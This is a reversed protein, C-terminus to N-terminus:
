PAAVEKTYMFETIVTIIIFNIYFMIDREALELAILTFFLKEESQVHSARGQATSCSGAGKGAPLAAGEAQGLGPSTPLARQQGPSHGPPEGLGPAATRCSRCNRCSSCRRCGMCSRCSGCRGCGRCGRYGRCRGCGRCGRCGGARACGPCLAAGGARPSASPVIGDRSCTWTRQANVARKASGLGDEKETETNKNLCPIELLSWGAQRARAAAAGERQKHGREFM